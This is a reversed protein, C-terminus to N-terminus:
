TGDRVKKPHIAFYLGKLRSGALATRLHGITGHVDPSREEFSVLCVINNAITQAAISRLSKEIAEASDRYAPLVVLHKWASKSPDGETARKKATRFALWVSGWWYIFVIYKRLLRVRSWLFAVMKVGSWMVPRGFSTYDCAVLVGVVIPPVLVLLRFRWRGEENESWLPNPRWHSKTPAGEM